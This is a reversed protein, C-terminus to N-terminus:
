RLSRVPLSVADFGDGVDHSRVDDADIRFRIDLGQKAQHALVLQGANRHDVVRVLDDADDGVGVEHDAVLVGVQMQGVVDIEPAADDVELRGLVKLLPQTPRERGGDGVHHGSIRDGDPRVVGRPVRRLQDGLTVVISQRDRTRLALESPITVRTSTSSASVRSLQAM